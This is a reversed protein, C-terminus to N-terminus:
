YETYFILQGSEGGKASEQPVFYTVVVCDAGNPSKLVTFTPNAFATSGAHSKINLLAFTDTSVEYLFVRWSSWDGAAFQVEQVIYEEGLFAGDDRDGINGKASESVLAENYATSDETTWTTFNRLVGTAVRDVGLRDDFYHFGAVIRSNTVSEGMAVGYINPTGEHFPSLTRPADFIRQPVGEFLSAPDSYYAFRLHSGDAEKEFAVLYGGNPLSAITPQSAGAELTTTFAWRILDTSTALHVLFEDGSWAHYVALYGGEPNEIIKITDLVRGHDDRAGYRWATAGTVDELIAQFPDQREPDGPPGVRSLVFGAIVSAFLSVALVLSWERRTLLNVAVRDARNTSLAQM